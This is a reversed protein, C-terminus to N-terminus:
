VNKQLDINSLGIKKKIKNLSPYLLTFAFSILIICILKKKGLIYTNFIILEFTVKFLM